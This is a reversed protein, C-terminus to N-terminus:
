EDLKKTKKECEFSIKARVVYRYSWSYRGVLHPHEVYLLLCIFSSGHIGLCSFLAPVSKRPEEM